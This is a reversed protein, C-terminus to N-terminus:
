IHKGCQRDCSGCLRVFTDYRGRWARHKRRVAGDSRDVWTEGCFLALGVLSIMIMKTPARLGAAGEGSGFVNILDDIFGVGAGGLFGAIPLWTQGRDLNCILTVATVVVVGIIGAMTPFKRKFKHAHLKTM